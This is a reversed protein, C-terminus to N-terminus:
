LEIMVEIRMDSCSQKCGAEHFYDNTIDTGNVAHLILQGGPHSTIWKSIDYVYHGNGVVLM